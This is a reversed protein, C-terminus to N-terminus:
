SRTTQSAATEQVADLTNDIRALDGRVVKWRPESRDAVLVVTHVRLHRLQVQLEVAAELGAADQKVAKALGAQLRNIYWSGSLCAIAVLLGLAILSGAYITVQPRKMKIFEISLTKRGSYWVESSRSDALSSRVSPPRVVSPSPGYGDREIQIVPFRTRYDALTYRM